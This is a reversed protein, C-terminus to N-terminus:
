LVFDTAPRAVHSKSHWDVRAISAFVCAQGVIGVEIMGNVNLAAHTAFRTVALDIFHGHHIVRFREAHTPAEFTMSIRGSVQSWAVLDQIEIPLRGKAFTPQFNPRPELLLPVDIGGFRTLAAM